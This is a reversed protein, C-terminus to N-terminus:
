FKNTVILRYFIAKQKRLNNANGEILNKFYCGFYRFLSCIRVLLQFAQAYTAGRWKHLFYIDSRLQTLRRSFSENDIQSAGLYHVVMADAFYVVQWDSQWMRKCWDVEEAYLFFNEDLLGIDDICTRSVLLCAGSCWGVSHTIDARPDFLEPVLWRALIPIREIVGGYQYLGGLLTLFPWSSRQYDGNPYLLKCGCAGIRTRSDIFSVMRELAHDIIVTDPNLLLVYRGSSVQIGQNTAKAFGLNEGNSILSIASFERQLMRSTDDISANDVVIVEIELAATESYISRLCQYLLDRTNYSVIVISLDPKKQM